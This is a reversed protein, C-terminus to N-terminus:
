PGPAVPLFEMLLVLQTGAGGRHIEIGARYSEGPAPFWSRAPSWRSRHPRRLHAPRPFSLDTAPRCSPVEIVHVPAPQLQDEVEVGDLDQVAGSQVPLIGPGPYHLFEGARRVAHDSLVALQGAAKLWLRSPDEPLNEPSPDGVEVRANCGPATITESADAAANGQAVNWNAAYPRGDALYLALLDGLWQAIHHEAHCLV